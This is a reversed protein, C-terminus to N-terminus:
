TWPTRKCRGSTAIAKAQAATDDPEFADAAARTSRVISNLSAQSSAHNVIQVTAAALHEAATLISQLPSAPGLVSLMQRDELREVRLSTSRPPRRDHQGAATPFSLCDFLGQVFQMPSRNFM